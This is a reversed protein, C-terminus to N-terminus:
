GDKGFGALAAVLWSPDRTDGCSATRAARHPDHTYLANEKAANENADNVSAKRRSPSDSVLPAASPAMPRPTVRWAASSKAAASTSAAAATACASRSALVNAAESFISCRPTRM